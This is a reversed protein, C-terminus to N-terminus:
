SLQKLHQKVKLQFSTLSQDHRLNRLLTNWSKAANYKFSTQFKTTKALPLRILDKNRTNYNHTQESSHFDDFLYAPAPGNICKYIQICKHYERRCQLSPWRLTQQIDTDTAKRGAIIGVARKLLRDLYNRNEQGCGDWVCCCTILYHYFWQMLRFFAHKKQSSKEPELLMGLRFSIKNGIHEIHEKWTLCPDLIVDLYKFKYLKELDNANVNVTFSQVSILKQHTGMLMVKTKSHNLMLYNQNLWGVVHGLDESLAAEITQVYSSEFFLLTDDAYLHVKCYKTVTQLDNIYMIFLLPGLVSGQPVGYLIPETNSQVGNINVSQTRKTLYAKFWNVSSKNLGFDSFKMLLLEHDLTDFAKSLDSFALGTFKGKDINHLATNTIDILSTTTSHLPRFGSQYSSLLKHKLLFSYVMEHVAKEQIKAFVPLVSIPRYNSTDSKSGSKHVPTVIAHKWSAPISGENISRNMLIALPMALADAGDKLLRPPINHLGTSKNSKLKQLEKAVFTESVQSLKFNNSSRNARPRPPSLVSTM